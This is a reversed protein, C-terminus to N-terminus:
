AMVPNKRPRGRRRPAEPIEPLHEGGVAEIEAAIERKAQESMNRDQWNREATATSRERDRSLLYEVAEQPSERWGDEAARAHETADRVIRQCRETFKRAAEEARNFEQPDRFEAPDPPAAMCCVKGNWHQARYLMKPYPRYTYPNGPSSGMTWKSHFQEFKAMEKSFNSGPVPVLGPERNYDPHTEQSFPKFEAM